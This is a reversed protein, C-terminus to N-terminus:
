NGPLTQGGLFVNILEINVDAARHVSGLLERHGQLLDLHNAFAKHELGLRGLGGLRFGKDFALNSKGASARLHRSRKAQGRLAPLTGIM